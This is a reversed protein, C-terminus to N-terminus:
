RNKFGDTSFYIVQTLLNTNLIGYLLSIILFLFINIPNVGNGFTVSNTIMYLMITQIIFLVNGIIDITKIKENHELLYNIRNKYNTYLYINIGVPVMLAMLLGLMLAFPPSDSDLGTLKHQKVKTALAFVILSLITFLLPTFVYQKYNKINFFLLAELCIIIAIIVQFIMKMSAVDAM